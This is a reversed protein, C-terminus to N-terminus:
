VREKSVNDVLYKQFVGPVDKLLSPLDRRVLTLIERKSIEIKFIYIDQGDDDTSKFISVNGQLLKKM